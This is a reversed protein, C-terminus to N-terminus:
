PWAIQKNTQWSRVQNEWRTQEGAIRGHDTDDDYHASIDDIRAFAEESTTRIDNQLELQTSSRLALLTPYLEAGVLAAFIYHQREHELLAKSEEGKVVRCRGHDLGVSVVLSKIRLEG